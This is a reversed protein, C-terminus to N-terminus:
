LGSYKRTWAYFTGEAIGMKRVINANSLRAQQQKIASFVQEVTFHKSKM